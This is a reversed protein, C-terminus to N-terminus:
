SALGRDWSGRVARVVGVSAPREAAMVPQRDAVATLADLDDAIRKLHEIDVVIRLTEAMRKADASEIDGHRAARYLRKIEAAIQGLTDLKGVRLKRPKSKGEADQATSSHVSARKVRTM